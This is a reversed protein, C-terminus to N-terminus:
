GDNLDKLKKKLEEIREQDDVINEDDTLLVADKAETKLQTVEKKRAAEDKLLVSSQNDTLVARKADYVTQPANYILRVTGVFLITLIVAGLFGIVIINRMHDLPVDDSTIETVDYTTLSPKFIKLIPYAILYLTKIIIDMIHKRPISEGM